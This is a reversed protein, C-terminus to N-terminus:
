YTRIFYAMGVYFYRIFQFLTILVKDLTATYLFPFIHPHHVDIVWYISVQQFYYKKIKNGISRPVFM